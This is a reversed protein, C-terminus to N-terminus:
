SCLLMEYAVTICHVSKSDFSRPLVKKQRNQIDANHLPCLDHITQLFAFVANCVRNRAYCFGSVPNQTKSTMSQRPVCIVGSNAMFAFRAFQQDRELKLTILFLCLCHNASQKERNQNGGVIADNFSYWAKCEICALRALALFCFM